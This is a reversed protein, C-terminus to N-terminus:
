VTSNTATAATNTGRSTAAMKNKFVTEILDTPITPKNDLSGYFEKIITWPEGPAHTANSLQIGSFAKHSDWLSRVYSKLGADQLQPTEFRVNTPGPGVSILRMMRKNVPKRGCDATQYYISKVIVVPGWPWAEFDEEFLIKGTQAVYWAYAYFLLKQLKM